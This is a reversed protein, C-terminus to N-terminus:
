QSVVKGKMKEWSEIAQSAAAQEAEQKSKGSGEGCKLSDVFVAMTFIKNHDPGEASLLEYMPTIRVDEQVITQFQSKADIYLKKNIIADIKHSINTNIFEEATEFSFQLYIAGILAEMTNALIYERDRGGTAEEGNSMFIYKGVSLRRAEEALSETRVLASRFSTLQGENYESFKRFLYKTVALELVADGLFELRENHKRNPELTRNENIFSRHTLAEQLIDLSDFSLNLIKQFEKLQNIDDNTM